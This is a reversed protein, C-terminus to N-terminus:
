YRSGARREGVLSYDRANIAAKVRGRDLYLSQRHINAVALGLNFILGSVLFVAAFKRWGSHQLYENWCYLSYLMVVPFTIYLTHSSPAKVSFLFSVYLLVLTFLTLYKIQRWDKRSTKKRFWLVLLAIPQLLGVVGLFVIFPALWPNTKIFALRSSTDRGIFRPLEFSALSLFRGLISEPLNWYGRLNNWNLQVVEGTSGTGSFFGYRMYTPILFSGPIIAGWAFWALSILANRRSAQYQYYFSALLFPIFVVWSLHFQMVWLLAFGMMFNAWPPPIVGSGLFPYTEIAGVFFLIAGVLVYSPNFIHTSLNLTWPATLLWTWVFWDPMEPLRKTCYWAFFCLAAFSLLNLLVYPAEPVPVVFLPLGVLLGQLAGPIQINNTVDPGFYPWARTCYFKLGILYIQKEDDTWFPLCLGFGLRFLFALALLCAVALRSLQRKGKADAM